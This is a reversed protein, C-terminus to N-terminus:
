QKLTFSSQALIQGAADEVQVEWDGRASASINKSSHSRWRKGIVPIKITAVTEGERMWRYILTDGIRNLVDTYFYLKVFGDLATTSDLEHAPELGKMRDTLAADSVDSNHITVNVKFNSHPSEHSSSISSPTTDTASKTTPQSYVSLSTNNDNKETSHTPKSTSRLASMDPEITSESAHESTSKVEPQTKKPPYSSPTDPKNTKIPESTTLNSYTSQDLQPTRPLAKPAALKNINVDDGPGSEIWIKAGWIIAVPTLLAILGVAIIRHWLIEDVYEPAKDLYHTNKDSKSM